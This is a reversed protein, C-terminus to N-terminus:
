KKETKTKKIKNDVVTLEKIDTMASMATFCLVSQVTKASERVRRLPIILREQVAHICLGNM